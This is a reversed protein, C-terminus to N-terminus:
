SFFVVKGSGGGDQNEGSELVTGRSQSNVPSSPGM